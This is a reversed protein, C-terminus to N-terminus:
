KKESWKMKNKCNDCRPVLYTILHGCKPCAYWTKKNSTYAYKPKLFIEQKEM